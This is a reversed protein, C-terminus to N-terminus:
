GGRSALCESEWFKSSGIVESAVLVDGMVGAQHIRDERRWFAAWFAMATSPDFGLREVWAM